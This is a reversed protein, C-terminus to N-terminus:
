PGPRVSPFASVLASRVVGPILANGAADRDVLGSAVVASPLSRFAYPRDPSSALIKQLADRLGGARALIRHVPSALPEEDATLARAVEAGSWTSPETMLRDRAITIARELLLPHGGILDFIPTLADLAISPSLKRAAAIRESPAGDAGPDSSLPVLFLPRTVNRFYSSGPASEDLFLDWAGFIPAIGASAQFTFRLAGVFAAKWSTTSVEDVNTFLLSLGGARACAQGLAAIWHELGRPTMTGPADDWAPEKELLARTADFPAGALVPSALLARRAERVIAGLFSHFGPEAADPPPLDLLAAPIERERELAQALRVLLSRKGMGPAAVLTIGGEISLSGKAASVPDAFLRLIERVGPVRVIFRDDDPPPRENARLPDM